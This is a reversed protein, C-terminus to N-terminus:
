LKPLIVTYKPTHTILTSFLFLQPHNDKPIRNHLLPVTEPPSHREITIKIKKFKQLRVLSSVYSAIDPKSIAPKPILWNRPLQPAIKCRSAM